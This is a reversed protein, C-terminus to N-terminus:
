AAPGGGLMMAVARARARSLARLRPTPTPPPPPVPPHTFIHTNPPPPPCHSPRLTPSQTRYPHVVIPPRVASLVQARHEQVARERRRINDLRFMVGFGVLGAIISFSGCARM